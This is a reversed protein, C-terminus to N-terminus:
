VLEPAHLAAQALKRAAAPSDMLTRTVVPAVGRERVADAHHADAEDVVLFDVLDGYIGALEAPSTGGELRRMMRDAPGKVARGGIL